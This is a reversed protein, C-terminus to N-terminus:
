EAGVGLKLTVNLKKADNDVKLTHEVVRPGDLVLTYPAPGGTIGVINNNQDVCKDVDNYVCDLADDLVDEESFWNDSGTCSSPLETSKLLCNVYSSNTAPLQIICNSYLPFVQAYGANRGINCNTFRCTGPWSMSIINIKSGTVTAGGFNYLHLTGTCYSRTMNLSTLLITNSGKKSLDRFQCQSINLMTRQKDTYLIDGNGNTGAAMKLTVLSVTIAATDNGVTLDGMLITEQGSGILTLTKDITKNTLFIGQSLYLTDGEVANNIATQLNDGSYVTVNGEHHLMVATNQAQVGATMALMATLSLLTKKM